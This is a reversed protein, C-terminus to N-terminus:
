AVSTISSFSMEVTVADSVDTNVLNIFWRGTPLPVMESYTANATATNQGLPAPTITPTSAILYVNVGSVHSYQAASITLTNGSIASVTVIEDAIVIQSGDAIGAVSSLTVTTGGSSLTTGNNTTTGTTTVIAAYVAYIFVNVGNISAAAGGTTMRATLQFEFLASADQYVGISASAALSAAALLNGATPLSSM